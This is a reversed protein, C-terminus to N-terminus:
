WRVLVSIVEVFRVRGAGAGCARRDTGYRARAAVRRAHQLRARVTTVHAPRQNCPPPHHVPTRRTRKSLTPNSQTSREDAPLRTGGLQWRQVSFAAGHSMSPLLCHAGGHQQLEYVCVRWTVRQKLHQLSRWRSLLM